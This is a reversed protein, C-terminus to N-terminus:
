RGSPAHSARGSPRFDKQRRVTAQARLLLEKLTRMLEITEARVVTHQSRAQQAQAFAAAIRKNM